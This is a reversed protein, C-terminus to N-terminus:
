KLKINMLYDNKLSKIIKFGLENYIKIASNNKKSVKLELIDIDYKVVCMELFLSTALRGIGKKSHSSYVYIGFRPIKFGEDYGRLTILGVITRFYTIKLFKDNNKKLYSELLNELNKFSYYYQTYIDNENFLNNGVVKIEDLSIEEIKLEM